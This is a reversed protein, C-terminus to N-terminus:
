NYNISIFTNFIYVCVQTGQIQEDTINKLILSKWNLFSHHKERKFVVLLKAYMYYKEGFFHCDCKNHFIKPAALFIM